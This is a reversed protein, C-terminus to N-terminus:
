ILMEGLGLRRKKPKHGDRAGCLRTFIEAVFRLKTM